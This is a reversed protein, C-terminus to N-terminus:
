ISIKLRRSTPRSPTAWAQSRYPEKVENYVHSWDLAVAVNRTEASSNSKLEYVTATGKDWGRQYVAPAFRNNLGTNDAKHDFNIETFLRTVQRAGSTPLYM